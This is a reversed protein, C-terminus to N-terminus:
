SGSIPTKRETKPARPGGPRGPPITIRTGDEDIIQVAGGAAQM